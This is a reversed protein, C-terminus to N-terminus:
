ERPDIRVLLGLGARVGVLPVRFAEQSVGSQGYRYSTRTLAFDVVLSPVISLWPGAEISAELGLGSRVHASRLPRNELTFDTARGRLQGLSATVCPGLALPGFPGLRACVQLDLGVSRLEFGGEAAMAHAQGSAFGRAHVAFRAQTWRVDLGVHPETTPLVRFTAGSSIGLHWTNEDLNPRAHQRRLSAGDLMLVSVLVLTDDLEQCRLARVTLERRTLVEADALVELVVQYEEPAHRIALRLVLDEDVPDTAM